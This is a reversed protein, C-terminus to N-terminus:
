RQGPGVICLQEYEKIFKHGELPSKGFRKGVQSTAPNIWKRPTQSLSERFYSYIVGGATEERSEAQVGLRARTQCSGGTGMGSGADGQAGSPGLWAPM